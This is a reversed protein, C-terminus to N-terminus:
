LKIDLQILWQLKQSKTINLIRFKTFMPLLLLQNCCHYSIEGLIATQNKPLKFYFIVKGDALMKSIKKDTTCFTFCDWQIELGEQYDLISIPVFNLPKYVVIDNPPETTIDLNPNSNIEQNSSPIVTNLGYSSQIGSQIQSIFYKWQEFKEKAYKQREYDESIMGLFIGNIIRFIQPYNCTFLRLCLLGFKDDIVLVNETL